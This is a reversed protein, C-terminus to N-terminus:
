DNNNNIYDNIDSTLLQQGTYPLSSRHSHYHWLCTCRHTEMMVAVQLNVSTYFCHFPGALRFVTSPRVCVCAACMCVFVCWHPYTHLCAIRPMSLCVWGLTLPLAETDIGIPETSRIPPAWEAPNTQPLHSSIIKLCWSSCKVPYIKVCARGMFFIFTYGQDCRHRIFIFLWM